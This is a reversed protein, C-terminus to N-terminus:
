EIVDKVVRTRMEEDWIKALKRPFKVRTQNVDVASDEIEDQESTILGMVWENSMLTQFIKRTERTGRMEQFEEAMGDLHKQLEPNFKRVLLSQFKTQAENIMSSSSWNQGSLQDGLLLSFNAVVWDMMEEKKYHRKIWCPNSTPTDLGVVKITTSWELEPGRIMLDVEIGRRVLRIERFEIKDLAENRLPENMSTFTANDGIAISGSGTATADGPLFTFTTENIKKM